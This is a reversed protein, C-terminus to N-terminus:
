RSAGKRRISMSLAIRAASLDHETWLYDGSTDKQPPEIKASRLLNILRSYSIGLAEAARPTKIENM